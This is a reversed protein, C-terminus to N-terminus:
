SQDLIPRPYPNTRSPYTKSPIYYFEPLILTGSKARHFRDPGFKFDFDIDPTLTTEKGGCECKDEEVFRLVKPHTALWSHGTRLQALLYARNRFLPGYLRQARKSLLYDTNTHSIM